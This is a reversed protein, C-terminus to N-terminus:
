GIAPVVLQQGPVVTASSLHNLSQIDAVVLRPDAHPAIRAAVSWLSEGAEVTVTHQVPRHNGVAQSSGRGLTFGATVLILMLMLVVVIRGRRTLRVPAASRTPSAMVM